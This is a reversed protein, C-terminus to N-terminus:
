TLDLGLYYLNYVPPATLPEFSLELNYHYISSELRKLAFSSNSFAMQFKLGFKDVAQCKSM